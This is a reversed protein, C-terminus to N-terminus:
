HGGHFGLAPDERGLDAPDPPRVRQTRPRDHQVPHRDPGRRAHRRGRVRRRYPQPPARGRRSATARGPFAAEMLYAQPWLRGKLGPAGVRQALRATALFRRPARVAERLAAWALRTPGEAIIDVTAARERRVEESVTEGASPRRISFTHVTHGLARLQAVEGRIFTDSARAYASTLYALTMPRTTM